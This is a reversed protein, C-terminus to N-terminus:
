NFDCLTDGLGAFLRNVMTKTRKREVRTDSSCVEDWATVVGAGETSNVPAKISTVFLIALDQSYETSWLKERRPVIRCRDYGYKRERGVRTDSCSGCRAKGRLSIKGQIIQHSGSRHSRRWRRWYRRTGRRGKGVGPDEQRTGHLVNSSRVISNLLIQGDLSNSDLAEQLQDLSEFRAQNGSRNVLWSSKKNVQARM